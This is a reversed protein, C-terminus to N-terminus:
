DVRILCAGLRWLDVSAAIREHGRIERWASTMERSWHIDDVILAAGPSLHPLLREFQLLNHERGKGADIYAFDIPAAEGLVGPLVDDFRGEIVKVRDIGLVGLTERAIEALQPSGEVSRLRGSGNMQLAAGQYAASIGIAGGLEVCSQPELERVLRMLFVGWPRHISSVGALHRPAYDRPGGPPPHKQIAIRTSRIAFEARRREIRAIWQEEDRDIGQGSIAEVARALGETGPESGRRVRRVAIRPLAKAFVTEHILRGAPPHAGLRTRLRAKFPRADARPV